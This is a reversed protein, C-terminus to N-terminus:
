PKTVTRAVELLKASIRLNAARAADLNIELKIRGEDFYYGVIGGSRAFDEANGVTLVAAGGLRRLLDPQRKDGRGIFLIQCASPDAVAEVEIKLARDRVKRGSLDPMLRGVAEAGMVCIRFEDPPLAPWDVFKTLHYLYAAEVKAEVEDAMAPLCIAAVPLALLAMWRVYAPWRFLNM